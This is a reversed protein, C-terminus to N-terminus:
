LGILGLGANLVFFLAAGLFTVLIASGHRWAALRNLAAFLTEDKKRISRVQSAALSLWYVGLGIILIGLMALGPSPLRQIFPLQLGIWLAALGIAARGLAFFVGARFYAWWTPVPTHFLKSRKKRYTTASWAAYGVDHLTVGIIPVAAVLTNAWMDNQSLPVTGAIVSATVAVLLGWLARFLATGRYGARFANGAARFFYLGMLVFIHKWHPYLHLPWSLYGSLAVFQERICPEAWGLMVRTFTEYYNAIVQLTPGLGYNLGHQVLKAVSLAGM